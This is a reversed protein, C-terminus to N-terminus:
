ELARVGGRDGAHPACYPLRGASPGHGPCHRAHSTLPFLQAVAALPHHPDRGAALVLGNHRLM